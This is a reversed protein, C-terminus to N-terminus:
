FGKPVKIMKINAAIQGERASNDLALEIALSNPPLLDAEVGAAVIDTGKRHCNFPNVMSSGRNHPHCMFSAPCATTCHVLGVAELAGLVRQLRVNIGLPCATSLLEDIGHKVEDSLAM